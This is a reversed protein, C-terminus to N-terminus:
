SIKIKRIKDLKEDKDEKFGSGLWHEKPHASNDEASMVPLSDRFLELNKLSAEREKQMKDINDILDKPIPPAISGSKIRDFNMGYFLKHNKLANFDYDSGEEGAGLRQFPNMSLLKDVLDVADLPM